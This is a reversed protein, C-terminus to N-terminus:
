RPAPAPDLGKPTLGMVMRVADPVAGIPMERMVDPAAGDRRIIAVEAGARDAACTVTVRFREGTELHTATARSVVGFAEWSRPAVVGDLLDVPHEGTTVPKVGLDFAGDGAGALYFLTTEGDLGHVAEEVLTTVRELLELRSPFPAM